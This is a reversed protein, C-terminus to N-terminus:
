QFMAGVQPHDLFQETVGADASSLNIRMHCAMPQAFHMPLKVRARSATVHNCPGAAGRKHLSTVSCIRRMVCWVESCKGGTFGCGTRAERILLIRRGPPPPM